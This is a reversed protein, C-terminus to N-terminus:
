DMSFAYAKREKILLPKEATCPTETEGLHVAVRWFLPEGLHVAVRLM